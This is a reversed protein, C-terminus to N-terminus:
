DTHFPDPRVTLRHPKASHHGPNIKTRRVGDTARGSSRADPFVLSAPKRLKNKLSHKAMKGKGGPQLKVQTEAKREKVLASGLYEKCWGQVFKTFAKHLGQIQRTDLKKELCLDVWPRYFRVKFWVCFCSGM